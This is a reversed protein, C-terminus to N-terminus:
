DTFQFVTLVINLVLATAFLPVTVRRLLFLSVAATIGLVGIGLSLLWDVIGLSAFYVRQAENLTITGTLVLVFSLLTWGASIVYFISIVWVGVPRRPRPRAETTATAM